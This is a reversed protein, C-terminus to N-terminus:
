QSRRYLTPWIAYTDTFHTEKLQWRPGLTELARNIVGAEAHCWSDTWVFWITNQVSHHINCRRAAGFVQDDPIVRDIKSKSLVCRRLRKLKTAIILWAGFRGLRSGKVAPKVFVRSNRLAMQRWGARGSTIVEITNHVRFIIRSKVINRGTVKVGIDECVQRIWLAERM